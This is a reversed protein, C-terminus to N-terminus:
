KGEVFTRLAALGAAHSKEPHFQSANLNDQAVAAVIRTGDHDVTVSEVSSSPDLVVHYSHVFYYWKSGLGHLWPNKLGLGQTDEVQSWGMHPIKLGPRSPIRECRGPIVGLGQWEGRETGREFLVQLGLCIGLYPNGRRIHGRIAQDLGNERLRTMCDGFSGQGPFVVHGANRVYNPDSTIKVSAGVEELARAVSRLNGAGHDIVIVSVM